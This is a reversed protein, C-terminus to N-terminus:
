TQPVDQAQYDQQPIRLLEGLQTERTIDKALPMLANLNQPLAANEQNSCISAQREHCTNWATRINGSSHSM